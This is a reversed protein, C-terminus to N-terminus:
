VRFREVNTSTSQLVTDDIMTDVYTGTIKQLRLDNTIRNVFRIPRASSTKVDM